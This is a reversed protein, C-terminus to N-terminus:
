LISMEDVVWSIGRMVIHHGRMMIHPILWTNGWRTNGEVGVGDVFEGNSKEQYFAFRSGNGDKEM